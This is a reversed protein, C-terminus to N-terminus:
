KPLTVIHGYFPPKVLSVWWEIANLKNATQSVIFCMFVLIFTDMYLIYICRKQEIIVNNHSAGNSV